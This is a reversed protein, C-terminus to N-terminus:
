TMMLFVVHPVLTTPDAIRKFSRLSPLEVVTIESESPAKSLYLM